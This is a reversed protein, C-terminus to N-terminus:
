PEEYVIFGEARQAKGERVRYYLEKCKVTPLYGCHEQGLHEGALREATVLCQAITEVDGKIPVGGFEKKLGKVVIGDIRGAIVIECTMAQASWSGLLATLLVVGLLPRPSFM